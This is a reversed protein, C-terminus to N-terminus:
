PAPLLQAEIHLRVIVRDEVVLFLFRPRDMGHDSLRVEFSGSASLRGSARTVELPVELPREVGHLGLSGAVSLSRVAGDPLDIPDAGVAIGEFAILPFEAVDFVTRRANSDRIASGSSFGAPDLAAAVRTGRLDEDDFRLDLSTLPARGVIVGTGDRIEYEIVSGPLLEAIFSEGRAVATLALLLVFAIPAPNM